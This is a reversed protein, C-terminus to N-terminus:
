KRPLLEACLTDSEFECLMRGTKIVSILPKENPFGYAGDYIEKLAARSSTAYVIRLERWKNTDYDYISIRYRKKM